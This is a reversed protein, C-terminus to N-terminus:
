TRRILQEIFELRSIFYLFFSWGMEWEEGRSVGTAKGERGEEEYDLKKLLHIGAARAVGEMPTLRSGKGGGRGGLGHWCCLAGQPWWLRRMRRWHPKRWDVDHKQAANSAGEAKFEKPDLYYSGRRSNRRLVRSAVCGWDRCAGGRRVCESHTLNRFAGSWAVKEERKLSSSRM